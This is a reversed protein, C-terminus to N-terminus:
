EVRLADIPAVAGVRRAPWWAALLAAASVGLFVTVTLAFDHARFLQRFVHLM